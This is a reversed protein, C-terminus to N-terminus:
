NRLRCIEGPGKEGSPPRHNGIGKGDTITSFVSLYPVFIAGAIASVDQTTNTM